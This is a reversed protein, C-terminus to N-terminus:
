TPTRSDAIRVATSAAADNTTLMMKSVITESFSSAACHRSTISWNL